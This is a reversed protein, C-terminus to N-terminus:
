PSKGRAPGVPSSRATEGRLAAKRLTNRRLAGRFALAEPNQAMATVSATAGFAQATQGARGHQLDQRREGLRRGGAGRDIERDRQQAGARADDDRGLVPREVALQLAEAAFPHPEDGFRGIRQAHRAVRAGDGIQDAVSRTSRTCATPTPAERLAAASFFRGADPQHM